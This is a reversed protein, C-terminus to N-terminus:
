HKPFPFTVVFFFCFKQMYVYLFYITSKKHKKNNAQFMVQWGEWCPLHPPNKLVCINQEKAKVKLISFYVMVTSEMNEHWFWSAAAM